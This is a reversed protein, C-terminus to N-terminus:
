PTNTAMLHSAKGVEGHIVAQCHEPFVASLPPCPPFLSCCNKGTGHTSFPPREPPCAHQKTDLNHKNSAAVLNALVFQHPNLYRCCFRKETVATAEESPSCDCMGGERGQKKLKEMLNTSISLAVRRMHHRMDEEGLRPYM